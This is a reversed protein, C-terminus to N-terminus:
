FRGSDLVIDYPQEYIGLYEPVTMMCSDDEELLFHLMATTFFCSICYLYLLFILFQLMAPTFFCFNYCIQLFFRFHLMTTFFGFM